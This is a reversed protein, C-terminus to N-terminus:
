FYSCYFSLLSVVILLQVYFCLCFCVLCVVLVPIFDCFHLDCPSNDTPILLPSFPSFPVLFLFCLQYICFLCPSTLFIIPVPFVLSSIYLVWPCSSLLPIAPPFPTVPHLTTFPSFNPCTYYCLGYFM